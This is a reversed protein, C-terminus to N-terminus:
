LSLMQKMDYLGNNQKSLFIAAAVAGKAFVKKSTASHKIEINEDDGAYLVTHEGAITGGRVAHIGLEKKSRKTSTGERGYTFTYPEDMTENVANALMLATGSPSDVKKNHHKEIIEIDFDELAKAAQAVLGLIVNVGISMNATRFIPLDEAMKTLKRENEDTLG